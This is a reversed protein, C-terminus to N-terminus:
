QFRPLLTAEAIFFLLPRGNDSSTEHILVRCEYGTHTSRGLEILRIALTSQRTIPRIAEAHWM